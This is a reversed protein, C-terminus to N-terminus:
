KMTEYVYWTNIVTNIPLRIGSLLTLDGRDVTLLLLDYKRPPTKTARSKKRANKDLLLRMILRLSKMDMQRSVAFSFFFTAPDDTHNVNLRKKGSPKDADLLIRHGQQNNM